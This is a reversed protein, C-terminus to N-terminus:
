RANQVAEVVYPPAIGERLLWRLMHCAASQADNKAPVWWGLAQLAKREPPKPTHQQAPPLIQCCARTAIRRTVGIMELADAANTQPMRVNVDYREWGIALHQGYHQCVSEIMSGAEMFRFEAAWFEREGQLLALGTDLGPDVWLVAVPLHNM